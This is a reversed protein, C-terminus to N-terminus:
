RQREERPQRNGHLAIAISLTAAENIVASNYAGEVGVLTIEEPLVGEHVHPLITLLYPLGADHGYVLEDTQQVLDQQDLVVVQGDDTFGSVADVFVVRGGQELYPLLDLGALGGEILELSAPLQCQQLRDYVAPGAADERVLRNGLCIIRHLSSM